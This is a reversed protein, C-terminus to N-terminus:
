RKCQTRDAPHTFFGAREDPRGRCLRDRLSDMLVHWRKSIEMNEHVKNRASREHWRRHDCGPDPHRCGQLQASQDASDGSGYHNASTSRPHPFAYRDSATDLDRFYANPGCAHQRLIDPERDRPLNDAPLCFPSPHSPSSDIAQTTEHTLLFVVSSRPDNELASITAFPTRRSASLIMILENVILQM